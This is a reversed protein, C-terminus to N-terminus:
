AAYATAWLGFLDGSLAWLTHRFRSAEHLAQEKESECGGAKGRNGAGLVVGRTRNRRHIGGLCLCLFRRGLEVASPRVLHAILPHGAGLVPVGLGM